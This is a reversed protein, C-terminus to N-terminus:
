RHLCYVTFLMQSHLCDNELKHLRAAVLVSGKVNGSHLYYQLYYKFTYIFNEVRLM